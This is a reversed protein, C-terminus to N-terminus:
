RDEPPRFWLNRCRQDTWAAVDDRSLATRRFGDVEYVRYGPEIRMVADHLSLPSEDFARLTDANFEVILHPKRTAIFETAGRVAMVEAGEIDLKMLRCSAVDRLEDDLRGVRCAIKRGGAMVPRLSALMHREDDGSEFSHIDVHGEVDGAGMEHITVNDFDNEAINDRFRRINAPLPELAHVHGSPGVLSAAILSFWGINGGVDVVVDGPELLTRLLKVTRHEFVGHHMACDPYERTRLLMKVGDATRLSVDTDAGRRTRGNMLSLPWLYRDSPWCRRMVPLAIPVLTSGLVRSVLGAM